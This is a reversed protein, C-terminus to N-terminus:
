REHLIPVDAVVEGLTELALWGHGLSRMLTHRDAQTVIIHRQLHGTNIGKDSRTCIKASGVRIRLEILLFKSLNPITDIGSGVRSDLLCWGFSGHAKCKNAIEAIVFANLHQEARELMYFILAFRKDINDASAMAHLDM